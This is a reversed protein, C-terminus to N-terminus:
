NFHKYFVENIAEIYCKFSPYHEEDDIHLNKKLIYTDRVENWLSKKLLQEKEKLKSIDTAQNWIMRNRPKDYILRHIHDDRETIIALDIRFPADPHNRFIICKSTLSSTSNEVNYLDHNRLIKNFAMRVTDKLYFPEYDMGDYVKLNYDFDFSHNKGNYTILKRKASGILSVQSSICYEYKLEHELEKMFESCLKRADNILNTDEAIKYM